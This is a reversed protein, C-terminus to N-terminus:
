QLSLEMIAADVRQDKQHFYKKRYGIRVFGAARYLAIAPANNVAVELMCTVAGRRITCATLEEILVRAQGQRQSQRSVALTLIEAVDVVIEALLFGDGAMFLLTGPRAFLATFEETSWGRAGSPTFADAHIRACKGAFPLAAAGAHCAISM